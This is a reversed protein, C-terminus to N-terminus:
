QHQLPLAEGQTMIEYQNSAHSWRVCICYICFLNGRQFKCAVDDTIEKDSNLTLFPPCCHILNFNGRSALHIQKRILMTQLLRSRNRTCAEPRGQFFAASRDFEAFFGNSLVDQSFFIFSLASRSAKLITLCSAVAACLSFSATPEDTDLM